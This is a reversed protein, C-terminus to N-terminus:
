CGNMVSLDLLDENGSPLLLCASVAAKQCSETAAFPLNVAIQKLWHYHVVSIRLWNPSSIFLLLAKQIIITLITVKDSISPFSKSLTQWLPLSDLGALSTYIVWNLEPQFVFLKLLLQSFKFPHFFFLAFICYYRSTVRM